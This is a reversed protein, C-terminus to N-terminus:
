RLTLAVVGSSVAATVLVEAAPWALKVGVPRVVTVALAAARDMAASFSPALVAGVSLKALACPKLATLPKGSCGATPLPPEGVSPEAAPDADPPLEDAPPM